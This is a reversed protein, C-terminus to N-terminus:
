TDGVTVELTEDLFEVHGSLSITYIGPVDYEIETIEHDTVMERGNTEVRVGSPLADITVTLDNIETTYGLPAKPRLQKTEVDQYHTDDMVDSDCEVYYYPGSVISRIVGKLDCVAYRM